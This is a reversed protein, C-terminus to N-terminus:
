LSARLAVAKTYMKSNPHDKEIHSLISKAKSTNGLEIQTLAEKYHYTPALVKAALGADAADAAKSYFDSANAYDGLDSYCDAMGALSMPALVDDNFNVQNFATIADEFLGADRNIVGVQYAARSAASSGAHDTMIEELGASFGDGYQALDLSDISFYYEAQFIAEEAALEAPDSILTKYGMFALIIVAAGGLILTLQNRNKDVFQETKTYVEDVNLITDDNKKAM